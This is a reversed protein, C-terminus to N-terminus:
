SHKIDGTYNMADSQNVITSNVLGSVDEPTIKSLESAIWARTIAMGEKLSMSPQWGLVRMILTNDSNRGKVGEPGPVHRLPINKGDLAIRALDNMSIGFDSGLNLPKTYESRMIRLIGEVCDDIYCFSRIQTGDGWVEFDDNSVLAKRCFAAPVKERGGRWTGYPGYVNHFRAIRVEIGFDRGYHIAMEESVLKELGYTDQPKAPWAHEEKLPIIDTTCQLDENYVCASSSYFYRKVKHQRCAEIMNSSIMINNYFLNASNSEIFGMGGMDAALNYVHDCKETSTLCNTLDRLDLLMFEDCFDDQKMFENYKWDVCVVYYGEQKLRKALHSGIFGAGGGICVRKNNMTYSKM